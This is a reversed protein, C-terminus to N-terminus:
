HLALLSFVVHADGHLEVDFQRAECAFSTQPASPFVSAIFDMWILSTVHLGVESHALQKCFGQDILWALV